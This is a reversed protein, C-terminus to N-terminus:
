EARALTVACVSGAGANLLISACETLTAGSTLVDDVLVILKGNARADAVFAGQVNQRRAAGKLLAQQDTYRVRTLLRTDVPVGCAAALGRALLESQNYGRERRRRAHLPVPVIIDANFAANRWADLLLPALPAALGPTGDYKFAHVAERLPPAYRAGSAVRLPFGQWPSVLPFQKQQESPILRSVRADCAACWVGEGAKGCGACALPYLLDLVFTVCRSLSWRITSLLRGDLAKTQTQTNM